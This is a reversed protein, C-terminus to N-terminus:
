KGGTICFGGPIAIAGDRAITTKWVKHGFRQVQFSQPHMWKWTLSIHRYPRAAKDVQELDCRLAIWGCWHECVDDNDYSGGTWMVVKDYSSAALKADRLTASGKIDSSTTSDGICKELHQINLKRRAVHSMFTTEM